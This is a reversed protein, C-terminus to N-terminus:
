FVNYKEIEKFKENIEDMNFDILPQTIFSMVSKPSLISIKDDPDKIILYSNPHKEITEEKFDDYFLKNHELSGYLNLIIWENNKDHITNYDSLKVTSDNNCKILVYFKEIM